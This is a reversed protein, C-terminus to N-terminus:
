HSNFWRVRVKNDEGLTYVSTYDATLEMHLIAGSHTEWKDIVENKRIDVLLVFGDATGVIALQGNHNMKACTVENPVNLM